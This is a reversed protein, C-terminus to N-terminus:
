SASIGVSEARERTTVNDPTPQGRGGLCPHHVLKLGKAEQWADVMAWRLADVDYVDAGVRERLYKLVQPHPPSKPYIHPKNPSGTPADCPAVWCGLRLHISVHNATRRPNAQLEEFSHLLIQSPSFVSAWNRLCQEYRGFRILADMDATDLRKSYDLEYNVLHSLMRSMPERIGVIIRAHPYLEHLRRISEIPAALHAPSKEGYIADSRHRADEATKDVFRADLNYAHDIRSEIEDVNGDMLYTQEPKLIFVRAHRALTNRLWTTGTRAAGIIFFDPQNHM